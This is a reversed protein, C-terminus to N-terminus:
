AAVQNTDAEATSRRPASLRSEAWRVLAEEEYLAVNGFKEFPPGGGRTAKTALTGAAVPYGRAQLFEAAGSRTHRRKTTMAQAGKSDM